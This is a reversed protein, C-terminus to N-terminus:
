RVSYEAQRLRLLDLIRHDHRNAGLPKKGFRRGDGDSRRAQIASPV